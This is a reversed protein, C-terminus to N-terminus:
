RVVRASGSMARAEQYTEARPWHRSRNLGPRALYSQRYPRERYGPRSGRVEVDDPMKLRHKRSM